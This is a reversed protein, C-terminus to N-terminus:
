EDDGSGDLNTAVLGYLYSASLAAAPILFGPHEGYFWAVPLVAAGIWISACWPCAIGYALDHDPGLRGIVAARIHRTLYDVTLLRTLRATLGLALLFVTLTV